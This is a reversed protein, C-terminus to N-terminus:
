ATLIAGIPGCSGPGDWGREGECDEELEEREGGRRATAPGWSGALKVRERELETEDSSSMPGERGEDEEWGSEDPSLSPARSKRSRSTRRVAAASDARSAASCAALERGSHISTGGESELEDKCATAPSGSLRLDRPNACDVGRTDARADPEPVASTSLEQVSVGCCRMSRIRAWTM